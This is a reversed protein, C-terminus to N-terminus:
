RGSLSNANRGKTGVNRSNIKKTKRASFFYTRRRGLLSADIGYFNLLREPSTNKDYDWLMGESLGSATTVIEGTLRMAIFDGPLMVKYIQATSRPSM